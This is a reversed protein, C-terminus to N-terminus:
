VHPTCPNLPFMSPQVTHQSGETGMWVLSMITGFQEGPDTNQSCHSSGFERDQALDQGLSFRPSLHTGHVTSDQDRM